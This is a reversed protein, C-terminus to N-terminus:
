SVCIQSIHIESVRTTFRWENVQSILYTQAAFRQKVDDVQDKWNHADLLAGRWFM